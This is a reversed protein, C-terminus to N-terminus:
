ALGALADLPVPRVPPRVSLPALSDASRGTRHAFVAALGAECLRGQCLGMGARTMRKVYALDPAGEDLVEGVEAATVGECRCLVTDPTVLAALRAVHRCAVCERGPLRPEAGAAPSPAGLRAAAAIGALRGETEALRAGGIGAADGAAFLGPVTTELTASRVPVWGGADPVYRHECGALVALQVAPVRGFGLCVADAEVTVGSGPVPRWGADLEVTVVGEVERTGLVRAITRGGAAAAADLTTVVRAAGLDPLHPSAGAVVVRRGPPVDAAATYVGSLTWGPLPVPRDHAGTALVVVDPRVLVAQDADWVALTRADFIGWVVASAHLVVGDAPRGPSPNEDYLHVAAGARALEAAAAMGAPGAGVVAAQVAVPAM